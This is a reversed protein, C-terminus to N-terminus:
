REVSVLFHKLFSGFMDWLHVLEGEALWSGWGACWPFFICFISQAERCKRYKEIFIAHFKCFDAASRVM